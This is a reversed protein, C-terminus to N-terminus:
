RLTATWHKLDDCQIQITATSFYETYRSKMFANLNVSSYMGM